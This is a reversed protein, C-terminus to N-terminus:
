RTSQLRRLGARTARPDGFTHSRAGVEGGGLAIASARRAILGGNWMAPGRREAASRGNQSIRTLERCSKKPARRARGAVRRSCVGHQVVLVVSTRTDPGEASECVCSAGNRCARHNSSSVCARPPSGADLERDLGREVGTVSALNELSIRYDPEAHPLVTLPTTRRASTQGREAPRPPEGLGPGARGPM